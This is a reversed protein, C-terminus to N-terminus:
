PIDVSFLSSLSERKEAYKEPSLWDDIPEGLTGLENDFVSESHCYINTDSYYTLSESHVAVLKGNEISYAVYTAYKTYPSEPSDVAYEVGICESFVAMNEMDIKPNSVDTDADLSASGDHSVSLQRYHVDGDIDSCFPVLMLMDNEGSSLVIAKKTEDTSFLSTDSSIDFNGIKKGDKEIYLKRIETKSGRYSFAFGDQEWEAHKQTNFGVSDTFYFVLFLALAVFIVGFAIYLLKQKQM